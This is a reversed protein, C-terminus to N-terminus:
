PMKSCRLTHGQSGEGNGRSGLGGAAALRSETDALQNKQEKILDNTNSKAQGTESLMLDEPEMWTIAFPLIEVQRTVSYVEM